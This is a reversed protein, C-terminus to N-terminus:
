KYSSPRKISRAKTKTTRNPMILCPTLIGCLIILLNINKGRKNERGLTLLKGARELTSLIYFRTAPELSGVKILEIAIPEKTEQYYEPMTAKDPLKEFQHIMIQGQENKHKRIGKLVAKIRAEMPTDVRPPRGRRKRSDENGRDGDGKQGGERKITVASSRPGRKRRRKAGDEDSDDAEDDEDDEDDEEDEDDEYELPRPSAPPIEGLDPLVALEPSIIKQEAIQYLEREMVGRMIIADQYAGAEPRNYTQANHTILACDRVFEAFSKYERTLQKHKLTSLAVPEKIVEYYDPM